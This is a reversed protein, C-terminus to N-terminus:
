NYLSIGSIDIYIIEMTYIHILIDNCEVHFYCLVTDVLNSVMLNM